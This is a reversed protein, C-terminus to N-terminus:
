GSGRRYWEGGKRKGKWADREDDFLGVGNLGRVVSGLIGNFIRWKEPALCAGEAWIGCMIRCAWLLEIM